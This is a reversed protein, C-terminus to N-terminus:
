TRACRSCWTRDDTRDLKEILWPELVGPRAVRLPTEAVGFEPMWFGHLVPDLSKVSFSTSIRLPAASGSGPSVPAGCACLALAAATLLVAVGRRLRGM